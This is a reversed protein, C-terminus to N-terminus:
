RWEFADVGCKNIKCVISKLLFNIKSKNQEYHKVSTFHIKYLTDFDEKLSPPLLPIISGVNEIERRIELYNVETETTSNKYICTFLSRNSTIITNLFYQKQKKNERKSLHYQTILFILITLLAGTVTDFISLEYWEKEM